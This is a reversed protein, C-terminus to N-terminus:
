GVAPTLSAGQRLAEGVKRFHADPAGQYVALRMIRRVWSHIWFDATIAMGGHFQMCEKVLRLSYESVLAHAARAWTTAAIGDERWHGVRWAAYLVLAEAAQLNTYTDVLGHQIAQFSGIPRDFQRRVAVYELTRSLTERSTGVLEATHLLMNIALWPESGEIALRHDGKKWEIQALPATPTVTGARRSSLADNPLLYWGETGGVLFWSAPGALEAVVASREGILHGLALGPDGRHLSVILENAVPAISRSLVNKAVLFDALCVPFNGEGVAISAAIGQISGEVTSPDIDLLDMKVLAEAYARASAKDGLRDLSARVSEQLLEEERSFGFNM